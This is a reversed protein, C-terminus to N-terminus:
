EEYIGESFASGYKLIGAPATQRDAELLRAPQIRSEASTDIRSMVM